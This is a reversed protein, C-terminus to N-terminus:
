VHERHFHNNKREKGKEPSPFLLGQSSVLCEACSWMCLAAQLLHMRCGPMSGTDDDSPLEEWLCLPTEDCLSGWPQGVPAWVTLGPATVRGLHCGTSALTRCLGWTVSGLWQWIICLRIGCSCCQSDEETYVSSKSFPATPRNLLLEKPRGWEESNPYWCDLEIAFVSGSDTTTARNRLFLM